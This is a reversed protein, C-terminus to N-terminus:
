RTSALGNVYANCTMGYAVWEGFLRVDSAEVMIADSPVDQASGAGDGSAPASTGSAVCQRDQVREAIFRDTADRVVVRTTQSADDIREALADYRAQERDMVAQQARRAEVQADAVKDLADEFREARPKWGEFGLAIGFPGEWRLNAYTNVAQAVNLSALAALAYVWPPLRKAFALASLLFTM